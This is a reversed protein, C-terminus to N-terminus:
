GKQEVEARLAGTIWGVVEELSTEETRREAARRGHRFVVIRDSLEFVQHLNHSIILVALGRAALGRVINGVKEQEEVGLNATPEDMMILRRGWLVTRAVAVAQRQGGSLASVPADISPVTIKLESLESRTKLRMARKDLWLVARGWRAYTERGLFMNAWVPLDEALALDQFVTEVGHKRAESPSGFRIPEGNLFITGDDPHEVGSVLKVFTSKGAGNDGVLAVVEGACATLDVDRLAEIHGFSKSLGRTELIPVITSDAAITM